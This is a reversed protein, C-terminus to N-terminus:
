DRPRRGDAPLKPDGHFPTSSFGPPVLADVFAEDEESFGHALTGQYDRWQELSKPGVIVSGVLDNALLWRIAFQVASMGREEAHAKLQQAIALSEDRIETELIRADGRGARSDAPLPEGPRYKGSLVGRALPSYPVMSLGHYELAPLHEMEPCRDVINYLQQLAVPPPGGVAEAARVMEGIRWAYANSFSWYRVKGARILECLAGVPEELPTTLDDVHLYYLDIHELNLRRLSEEAEFLIRRRSLIDEGRGRGLDAGVKTAVVWDHRNPRVLAGVLEESRGKTYANATDIFNVGDDRAADVIRRTEAEDAPGGFMMAGLCLESVELGSTGLRRYEM